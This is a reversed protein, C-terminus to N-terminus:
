LVGHVGEKIAMRAFDQWRTETRLACSLYSKGDEMASLCPGECTAYQWEDVRKTVENPYVASTYEGDRCTTVSVGDAEALSRATLSSVLELIAELKEESVLLGAIKALSETLEGTHDPM